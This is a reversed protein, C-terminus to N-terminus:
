SWAKRFNNVVEQAILGQHFREDKTSDPRENTIWKYSVPNLDNVFNLGLQTPKLKQKKELILLKFQVMEQMYLM